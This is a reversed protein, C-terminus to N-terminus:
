SSPEVNLDLYHQMEPVDLCDATFAKRLLSDPLFEDYKEMQPAEEPSVLLAPDITEKAIKSLLHGVKGIQQTTVLIFYPLTGEVSTIGYGNGYLYKLTRILTVVSRTGM